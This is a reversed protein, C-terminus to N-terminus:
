QRQGRASRRACLDVMVCPDRAVVLVPVDGIDGGAPPM